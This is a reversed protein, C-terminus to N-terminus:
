LNGPSRRARLALAHGDFGEYLALREVAPLLDALGQPSAYSISTRKLFTWVSPCDYTLAKRGSPLCAGAGTAYSALPIPTNEGVLIEGCNRIAAIAMEPDRVKMVLREVAYENCFDIAEPIHRCIIIGGHGSFVAECADRLPPSLKSVAAPLLGAVTRALLASNTVLLAVSNAGHEAESVLDLVTNWPDASDDALVISESPGMLPGSHVEHALLRKAAVVHGNGPGGVLAVKPITETGFTLAAIAAAGGVKYIERVGCIDAAVLSAPDFDGSELPPTCVAVRSVGAIMAPICLMYMVSPAARRERPVYFGVSEIPTIKEGAYVGPSTEELWYPECRAMQNEHHRRINAACTRISEVISPELASYALDFDADTARWSDSINGRDLKRAYGRLAADGRRRVDEVIVRVVEIISDTNEESRANLRARDAASMESLTWVNIRM